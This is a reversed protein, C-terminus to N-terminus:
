DRELWLLFREILGPRRRSEEIPEVLIDTGCSQCHGTDGRLEGPATYVAGCNICEITIENM